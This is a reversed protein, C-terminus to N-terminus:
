KEGKRKRDIAKNITERHINPAQLMGKEVLYKLPVPTYDIHEACMNLGGETAHDHGHINCAFPFEVPEHSLIINPAIM